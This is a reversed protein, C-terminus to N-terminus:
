LVELGAIWKSQGRKKELAALVYIGASACGIILLLTVVESTMTASVRYLGAPYRPSRISLEAITTVRPCTGQGPV